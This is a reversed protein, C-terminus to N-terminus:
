ASARRRHRVARRHDQGAGRLSLRARVRHPTYEVTQGPKWASTPTPPDHDDTWMQEGDADVFHVFVKRNGLPGADSAVTFRYTVEVPSGLAVRPRSLQVTM